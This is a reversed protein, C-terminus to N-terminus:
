RGQMGLRWMCYIYACISLCQTVFRLPGLFLLLAMGLVFFASLCLGMAMVNRSIYVGEGSAECITQTRPRAPYRTSVEDMLKRLYIPPLNRGALELAEAYAPLLISGVPSVPFGGLAQHYTELPRLRLDYAAHAQNSSGSPTRRSTDEFDLLSDNKENDQSIMRLMSHFSFSFTRGDRQYIWNDREGKVLPSGQQELRKFIPKRAAPSEIGVDIYRIGDKERYCSLIGGLITVKIPACNSDGRLWEFLEIVVPGVIDADVWGVPGDDDLSIGLQTLKRSIICAQDGENPAKLPAGLFGMRKYELYLRGFAEKLERKKKTSQRGTREHLTVWDQISPSIESIFNSPDWELHMPSPGVSFEFAYKMLVEFQYRWWRGARYGLDRLMLFVLNELCKDYRLMKVPYRGPDQRGRCNLHAYPTDRYGRNKSSHLASFRLYDSSTSIYSGSDYGYHTAQELPVLPGAPPLPIAPSHVDSMRYLFMRGTQSEFDGCVTPYREDTHFHYAPLPIYREDQAEVNDAYCYRREPDKCPYFRGTAALIEAALDIYADEVAWATCFCEIPAGMISLAQDGTLYTRIKNSDFLWQVWSEAGGNGKSFPFRPPPPPPSSQDYYM